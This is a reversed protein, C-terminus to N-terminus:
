AALPLADSAREVEDVWDGREFVPYGDPSFEQAVVAGRVRVVVAGNGKSRGEISIEIDPTLFFSLTNATFGPRPEKARENVLQRCREFTGGTLGIQLLLRGLKLRNAEPLATLPVAHTTM